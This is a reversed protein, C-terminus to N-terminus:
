RAQEGVTLNGKADRAFVAGNGPMTREVRVAGHYTGATLSTKNDRGVYYYQRGRDEKQDIVQSAFIKGKPDTITLTIKDGKRLGYFGAWYALVGRDTGTSHLSTGADDRIVDFDPLGRSFGTAFVAMPQYDVSIGMQWMPGKSQGCGKGAEVASFPDVTKGNHFLGFHLHPFEAAGSQGIEAIKQGATVRDLAKVAVSGAQLQCYISQWGNEHDILIGNGCGKASALMKHVEEQTPQHDPLGDRVRVVKGPAVALVSVASKRQATDRLAFDTGEHGDDSSLGCSYDEVKGKEANLDPYNAIWCDQGPACAAPLMLRFDDTALVPGAALVACAFILAGGRM